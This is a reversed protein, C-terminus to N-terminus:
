SYTYRINYVNEYMVQTTPLTNYLIVLIWLSWSSKNRLKVAVNMQKQLNSKVILFRLTAYTGERKKQTGVCSVPPVTPSNSVTAELLALWDENSARVPLLSAPASTSPQCCTNERSTATMRLCGVRRCTRLHSACYFTWIKEKHIIDFM